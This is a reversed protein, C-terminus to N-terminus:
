GVPGEEHVSSLLEAAEGPGLHYAGAAELERRISAQHEARRAAAPTDMLLLGLLRERTPKDVGLLQCSEHLRRLTVHPAAPLADDFVASLAAVDRQLQKVGTEM